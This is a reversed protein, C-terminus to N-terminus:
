FRYEILLSWWGYKADYDEVWSFDRVLASLMSKHLAECDCGYLNVIFLSARMSSFDIYFTHGTNLALYQCAMSLATAAKVRSDTVM